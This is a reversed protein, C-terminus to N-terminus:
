KGGRLENRLESREDVFGTLLTLPWKFIAPQNPCQVGTQPHFFEFYGRPLANGVLNEGPNLLAGCEACAPNPPPIVAVPIPASM